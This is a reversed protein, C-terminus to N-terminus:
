NKNKQLYKKLPPMYDLPDYKEIGRKALENNKREVWIRRMQMDNLSESTFMLYFKQLDSSMAAPEYGFTLGGTVM